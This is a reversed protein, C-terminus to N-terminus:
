LELEWNEGVLDQGFSHHPESAVLRFGARAYIARAATLIDNTWLTIKAYGRARAFGICAETLRRGLGLGRAAPEVLLLRLKAVEDSQRVLFVSGVIEGRCEAIWARERAPDFNQIFQAGIEAVLAEFRTDFGYEQHYLVGHRHAVWGIDGPRHPRLTYPATEAPSPDNLLTEIETMAHTLRAQAPADLRALMARVEASSRENLPAFAVHGADTLVLHSQRGDHASRRKEVLGKDEFGRLMRSLYGPDLGLDRGLESATTDSRHALEYLVRSETLSFPTALLGEQLVGIQRTYFRNFRRVADVRQALDEM